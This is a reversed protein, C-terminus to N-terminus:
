ILSGAATVTSPAPSAAEPGTGGVAQLDIYQATPPAHPWGPTQCLDKCVLRPGRQPRSQMSEPLQGLLSKPCSSFGFPHVPSFSWTCGLHGSLPSTFHPCLDSHWPSWALLLPGRPPEAEQLGPTPFSANESSFAPHAFTQLCSFSHTHTYEHICMVHEHAWVHAHIQTHMCMHARTHMQADTSM